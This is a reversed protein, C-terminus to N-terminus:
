AVTRNGPALTAGTLLVKAHQWVPWSFIPAFSAMASLFTNPLSLMVLWGKTLLSFFLICLLAKIAKEVRKLLRQQPGHV